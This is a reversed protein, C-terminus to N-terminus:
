APAIEMPSADCSQRTSLKTLPTAFLLTAFCRGGCAGNAIMISTFHEILKLSTDTLAHGIQQEAMWLIPEVFMPVSEIMEFTDLSDM